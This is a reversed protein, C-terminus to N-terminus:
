ELRVGMRGSYDTYHLLPRKPTSEKNFYEDVAKRCGQWHGYDDILISGGISLLPYLVELEKLTSEYWDTDLRLVCIKHPLNKKDELTTAVDGKILRVGEMEAGARKLNYEVEEVSALCWETFADIRKAALHDFASQSTNHAVDFRTPETMGAFTDFLFVMKDSKLREFTLKAVIANGGRWVGCEVFHGEITNLAAHKCASITAVLRSVPTMTLNNRVVYSIVECDESDFEVPLQSQWAPTQRSISVITGLIRSALNRM